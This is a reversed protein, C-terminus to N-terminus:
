RFRSVFLQTSKAPPLLLNSKQQFSPIGKRRLNLKKDASHTIKKCHNQGLHNTSGNSEDTSANSL